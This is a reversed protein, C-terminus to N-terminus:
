SLRLYGNSDVWMAYSTMPKEQPLNKLLTCLNEGLSKHLYMDYDIKEYTDTFTYQIIHYIEDELYIYGIYTEQYEQIWTLKVRKIKLAREGSGNPLYEFQYGNPYQPGLIDEVNQWNSNQSFGLARLRQFLTYCTTVNGKYLFVNVYLETEEVHLSGCNLEGSFDGTAGKLEGSFEGNEAYITGHIVANDAELLGQKSIKTYSTSHQSTDQTGYDKGLYLYNGQDIVSATTTSTNGNKDKTTVTIKEVGNETTHTVKSETLCDTVSPITPTGSLDSYAGSTAVAALNPTDGLDEYSGSTAVDALGTVKSASVSAGSGLTLSNATIDGTIKADGGIVVDYDQFDPQYQGQSNKLSVGVAVKGAIHTDGNADINGDYDLRTGNSERVYTTNDSQIYGGQRLYITKTALSNMTADNAFFANAFLASFFGPGANNLLLIDELAMMYYNRYATSTPDLGEWANNHYRYIWSNTYSTVTTGSYVFYDGELPNQPPTSTAGYYVPLHDVKTRELNDIASNINTVGTKINTIDVIIGPMDDNLGSIKVNMGNINTEIEHTDDAIDTLLVKVGGIDIEMNDLTDDIDVYQSHIDSTDVTLGEIALGVGDLDGEVDTVRGSISTVDGKITAVANELGTIATNINTVGTKINTIDVIIGPMDDNLGSIKVNMGNINTEIEHTDDAIDTLLVKVGGIDIEMNDLTDDIDVYQSHIDSTDVTLGEIALGVGDLDGEVDTVRGSISTVDGKIEVTVDELNSISGIIETIRGDIRVIDGNIITYQGYRTEIEDALARNTNTIDTNAQDIQDQLDDLADQFLAPLHGTVNIVDAFAAVYRYGRTDEDKWWQGGECYYIFGKEFLRSIGLEDNNVYLEVGNIFLTETVVFDDAALFFSNEKVDTIETLAGKYDGTQVAKWAGDVYMYLGGMYLAVENEEGPENLDELVRFNITAAIEQNIAILTFSESYYYNSFMQNFISRNGLQTDSAMDDFLRLDSYIYDRLAEYTRIYDRVILTGIFGLEETQTYIAAFSRRINEMERLLINKEVPTIVGDDSLKEWWNNQQRYIQLAQEKVAEITKRIEKTTGSTLDGLVEISGVVLHKDAMNNESIM